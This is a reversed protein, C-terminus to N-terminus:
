GTSAPTRRLSLIVPAAWDSNSPAIIGAKLQQEIIDKLVKKHCEPIRYPRKRVPPADGTPLRFETLPTATLIEGELAFCTPHQYVLRQVLRQQDTTMATRDILRLIREARRKQHEMTQDNKQAGTTQGININQCTNVSHPEDLWDQVSTANVREGPISTAKALLTRRPLTVGEPTGNSLCVLIKGNSEIDAVADDIWVGEM